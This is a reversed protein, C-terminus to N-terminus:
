KYVVGRAATKTVVTHRVRKRLPRPRAPGEGEVTQSSFFFFSKTDFSDVAAM